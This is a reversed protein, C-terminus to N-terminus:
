LKLSPVEPVPTSSRQAGTQQQQSSLWQTVVPSAAGGFLRSRGSSQLRAYAGWYLQVLPRHVLFALGVLFTLSITGRVLRTVARRRRRPAPPAM